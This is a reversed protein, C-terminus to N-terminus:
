IQQSFGTAIHLMLLTLNLKVLDIKVERCCIERIAGFYAGIVYYM